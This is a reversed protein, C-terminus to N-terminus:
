ESQLPVSGVKSGDMGIVLDDQELLYKKLSEADGIFYRDIDENHRIYGETINIGRLIPVGSVDESIESSKFPYGSLLDVKPGIQLSEWEGVDRFEPFRLRPVLGSQPQQKSM